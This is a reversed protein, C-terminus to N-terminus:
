SHIIAQIPSFGCTKKFNMEPSLRQMADSPLVKTLNLSRMSSRSVSVSLIPQEVKQRGRGDLLRDWVTVKVVGKPLLAFVQKAIFFTSSCAHHLCLEFYRTKSMSKTSLKGSKLLTKTQSPISRDSNIHLDAAISNDDLVEFKVTTFAALEKFPFRRKLVEGYAQLDAALIRCARDRSKKWRICAKEQGRLAKQYVLEDREIAGDVQKRLAALKKEARNLLKDLFGPQFDTLHKKAQDENVTTRTPKPPPAVDALAEWDVRKVPRKHIDVLSDLDKNFADVIAAARQRERLKAQQLELEKQRRKEERETKQRRQKSERQYQRVGQTIARKAFTEFRM